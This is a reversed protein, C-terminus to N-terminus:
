HSSPAIRNLGQTQKSGSQKSDSQKNSYQAVTYIEYSKGVYLALSYGSPPATNGTFVVAGSLTYADDANHTLTQTDTLTVGVGDKSLGEYNLVTINRTATTIKELYDSNELAKAQAQIESFAIQHLHQSLLSNHAMQSQLQSTDMAVIALLTMVLLLILSVILVAGQQFQNHM